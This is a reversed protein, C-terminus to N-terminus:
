EGSVALDPSIAGRSRPFHPPRLHDTCRRRGARRPAPAQRRRRGARGPVPVPLHSHFPGILPTAPASSCAPVPQRAPAGAHRDAPPRRLPLGVGGGPHSACFLRTTAVTARRPVASDRRDGRGAGTAPVTPPDQSTCCGGRRVCVGAGGAVLRDNNPEIVPMWRPRSPLQHTCWRAAGVLVRVWPHRPRAGAWGRGRVLGASALWGPGPGGRDPGPRALASWGPGSGAWPRVGRSVPCVGRGRM